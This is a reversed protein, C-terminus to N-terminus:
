KESKSESKEKKELELLIKDVKIEIDKIDETKIQKEKELPPLVFQEEIEQLKEMYVEVDQQIRQLLTKTQGIMELTDKKEAAPIKLSKKILPKEIIKEPKKSAKYKIPRNRLYYFVIFLSSFLIV